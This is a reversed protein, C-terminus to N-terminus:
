IFSTTSSTSGFVYRTGGLGLGMLAVRCYRTLARLKIELRQIREERGVLDGNRQFPCSTLTQLRPLM